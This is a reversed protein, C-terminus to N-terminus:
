KHSIKQPLLRLAPRNKYLNAMSADVNQEEKFQKCILINIYIPAGTGQRQLEPM